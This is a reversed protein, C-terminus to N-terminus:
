NIPKVDFCGWGVGNSEKSDFRGEGVGVQKGARFALHYVDSATFQEADFNITLTLAWPSFRARARLDMVGNANRVPSILMEPKGELRVLPTGDLLDEGDAMIFVSLKAKTMAFGCVRCASIFANRFSSAPIGYDYEAKAKTGKKQPKKEVPAMRYYAHKFDDEFDRPTRKKGKKGAEGAEQKERMKDAAKQSFRLQVFPIPSGNISYAGTIRLQLTGQQYPPIVLTTTRTTEKAPTARRGKPMAPAGSAGYAVPGHGETGGNPPEFAPMTDDEVEAPVAIRKRTKPAGNASGNSRPTRTATAM